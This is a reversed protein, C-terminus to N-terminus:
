FDPVVEVTWTAAENPLNWTEVFVGPSQLLDFFWPTHHHDQGKKFPRKCVTFVIFRKEQMKSSFILILWGNTQKRKLRYMYSYCVGKKCWGARPMDFSPPHSWMGLNMLFVELFQTTEGVCVTALQWNWTICYKKPSWISDIILFLILSMGKASKSSM